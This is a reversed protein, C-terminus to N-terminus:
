RPARVRIAPPEQLPVERILTQLFEEAAPPVGTGSVHIFILPAVGAETPLLHVRVRRDRPYQNDVIKGIHEINVAAYVRPIAPGEPVYTADVCLFKHM